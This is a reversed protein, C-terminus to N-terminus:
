KGTQGPKYMPKDTQVFVLSETNKVLVTNRKRFDLTPGKIRISLFAVESSASIRPLTFSVCHFLDKEAVLDTFLSRNEGGSELSASVTVTENLHSLLVCGKKPAETHLLSPVLVMYQPEASSSDSASLLILLLMLCLHLLRDKGM